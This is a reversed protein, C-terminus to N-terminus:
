APDGVDLQSRPGRRMAATAIGAFLLDVFILILRSAAAVVLANAAGIRGSLLAVLVAERVGLGGPAYVALLGALWAVAFAGVYITMDRAPVGLLGHACLWFSAGLLLWVPLYLLTAGITVAAPLRSRAPGRGAILLVAVAALVLGGWWGLLLAAMSGAAVASAVFEIPLSIGVLRVPIGYERAVAARGAYQWVSGPIYKGLQAQFFLWVWRLRPKVGLGDLIVLWIVAGAATGAAGLVFAGALAGWDVRALDIHSGHWLSRVRLVAFVIAAVLLIQAVTRVRKTTARDAVSAGFQLLRERSVMGVTFGVRLFISVDRYRTGQHHSV